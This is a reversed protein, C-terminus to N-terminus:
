TQTQKLRTRRRVFRRRYLISVLNLTVGFRLMSNDDMWDMESLLVGSENAIIRTLVTLCLM